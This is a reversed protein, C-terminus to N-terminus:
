IKPIPSWRPMLTTASSACTRRTADASRFLEKGAAPGLAASLEARLRLPRRARLRPSVGGHGESQGPFDSRRSVAQSLRRRSPRCGCIGEPRGSVGPLARLAITGPSLPRDLRSLPQDFYREALGQAQIVDFIREFAQWCQQQRTRNVERSRYTTRNGGALPDKIEDAPRLRRHYFDALALQANIKDSSNEVYAKWDSEAATFDLQQEDELARLSYLEANRPQTKILDGLAPRTESPPRRFAVAGNPLSM